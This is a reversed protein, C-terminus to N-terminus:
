EVILTFSQTANPRTGNSATFTLRYFGSKKPTGSLVGSTRDFSVGSPLSGSDKLSPQPSGSATVTFSGFVGHRFTTGADSTFRPAQDHPTHHHDDDSRDDDNDDNPTRDHDHRQRRPQPRQRRPPPRQRQRRRRQRQRRPRAGASVASCDRATHTAGAPVQGAADLVQVTGSGDNAVWIRTAARTRRRRKSGLVRTAPEAWTRRRRELSWSSAVPAPPTQSWEASNWSHVWAGHGSGLRHSHGIRQGRPLRGNPGPLRHGGRNDNRLGVPLSCGDCLEGGRPPQLDRDGGSDGPRGARHATRSPHVRWRCSM